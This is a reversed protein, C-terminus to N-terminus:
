SWSDLSIKPGYHAYGETILYDIESDDVPYEGEPHSDIVIASWKWQGDETRIPKTTTELTLEIGYESEYFVSGVELQKAIEISM